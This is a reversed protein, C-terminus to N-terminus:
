VPAVSRVSSIKMKRTSAVRLRCYERAREVVGARKASAFVDLSADAAIDAAFIM